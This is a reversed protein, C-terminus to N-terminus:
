GLDAVPAQYTGKAEDYSPTRVKFMHRVMEKERQNISDGNQNQKHIDMSRRLNAIQANAKEFPDFEPTENVERSKFYKNAPDPPNEIV